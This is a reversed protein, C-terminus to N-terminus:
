RVTMHSLCMDCVAINFRYCQAKQPAEIRIVNIPFEVHLKVFRCMYLFHKHMFLLVNDFCDGIFTQIKPFM